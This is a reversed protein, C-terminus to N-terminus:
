SDCEKCIDVFKRYVLKKKFEIKHWSQGNTTHFTHNFEYQNNTLDKSVAQFDADSTSAVFFLGYKNEYDTETASM